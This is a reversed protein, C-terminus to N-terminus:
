EGREGGRRRGFKLALGRAQRAVGLGDLDPLTLDVLAADLGGNALIQIAESGGGAEVVEHGEMELLMRLMERSDAHDDVVLIRQRASAHSRGQTPSPTSSM